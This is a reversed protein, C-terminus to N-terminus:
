MLGVVLYRWNYLDHCLQSNTTQTKNETSVTILKDEEFDEAYTTPITPTELEHLGKM